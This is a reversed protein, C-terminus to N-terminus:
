RRLDAKRQCIKKEVIGIIKFCKFVGSKIKSLKFVVERHIKTRTERPTETTQKGELSIDFTLIIGRVLDHDTVYM